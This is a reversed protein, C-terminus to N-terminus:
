YSLCAPLLTRFLCPDGNRTISIQCSASVKWPMGEPEPFDFQLPGPRSPGLQSLLPHKKSLTHEYARMAEKKYAWLGPTTFGIGVLFMGIPFILTAITLELAVLAPFLPLALPM